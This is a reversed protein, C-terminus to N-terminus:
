FQQQSADLLPQKRPFHLLMGLGAFIFGVYYLHSGNIFHDLLGLLASAECLAFAVVYASQVMDLKQLANAQGLMRQKILFSIGLPVVALSNLVLSLRLNFSLCDSCTPHQLNIKVPTFQVLVLFLLVSMCIAFWLTFLTRYRVEINPQDSDNTM